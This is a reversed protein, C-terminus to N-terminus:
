FINGIRENVYTANTKLSVSFVHTDAMFEISSMNNFSCTYKSATEKACENKNISSLSKIITGCDHVTVYKQLSALVQIPM